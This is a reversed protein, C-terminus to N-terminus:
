GPRVRGVRWDDGARVLEVRRTAVETTPLPRSRGDRVLEGGAVRDVVRLTWTDGRRQLLRVAFVQTSLGRVRWGSAAYARLLRVDARGATSGPRYLARLAGADGASWAAGRRRDWDRLAAVVRGTRGLPTGPAPAVAVTTRAAPPPQESGTRGQLLTAVVLVGCVLVGVVRWVTM